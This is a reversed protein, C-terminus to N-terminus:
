GPAIVGRAILDARLQEVRARNVGFDSYGLRAASRVAVSGHPGGKARLHLELDDVFGLLRSRCEAHLYDGARKVIHTRPLAAVAERVAKWAEDAPIALRFPAVRRADDAADSCVCNPSFPCDALRGGVVGLGRQKGKSFKTM